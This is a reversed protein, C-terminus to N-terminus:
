LRTNFNLTRLFLFVSVPSRNSMLSTKSLNCASQDATMHRPGVQVCYYCYYCLYIIFIRLETFFSCSTILFFCACTFAPAIASNRLVPSEPIGTFLARRSSYPGCTWLGNGCRKWSRFWRKWFSDYNNPVTDVIYDPPKDLFTSNVRIMASVIYKFSLSPDGIFAPDFFVQVKDKPMDPIKSLPLTYSSNTNNFIALYWGEEINGFNSRTGFNPIIVTYLQDSKDGTPPAEAVSTTYYILWLYVTEYKENQNADGALDITLQIRDDNIQNVYASIIDHYDKIEPAINTKYLAFLKTEGKSDKINSSISSQEQFITAAVNTNNSNNGTILFSFSVCSIFAALVILFIFIQQM